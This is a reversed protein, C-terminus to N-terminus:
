ETVQVERLASRVVVTQDGYEANAADQWTGDDWVVDVWVRGDEAYSSLLADDLRGPLEEQIELLEDESGAGPEGNTPDPAPMPDFLALLIPPQTSTFVEGDYTGQVAYAGWTVGSATESGEVGEWSWGELPIGACQPPYSEAIGGLCLEVDGDADIVTGQGLVEGNPPEPWVVGFGPRPQAGTACGSLALVSAAAVATAIILRRM